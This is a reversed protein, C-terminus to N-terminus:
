HQCHQSRSRLGTVWWPAHHMLKDSFNIYIEYFLVQYSDNALGIGLLPSLVSDLPCYTCLTLQILRCVCNKEVWVIAFFAHIPKFVAIIHGKLTKINNDIHIM